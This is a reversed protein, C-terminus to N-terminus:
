TPARVSEVRTILWDGGIKQFTFKVEQVNSDKEGAAQVKVAVDAVASQRDPAVTVSVDPFEVKLSSLRTRAGAAAQTIDARGSFQLREFGPANLNVEVNTSFRSALNESRVAIVLPNEGSNFSVEAALQALRKRVVKEPSPFVLTWLWVGATILIGLLVLRSM